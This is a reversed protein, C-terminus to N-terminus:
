KNSCCSLCSHLYLPHWPPFFCPTGLSSPLRFHKRHSSPTWRQLPTEELQRDLDHFGTPPWLVSRAYLSGLRTRGSLRGMLEWSEVLPPSAGKGPGEWARSVASSLPGDSRGDQGTLKQEQYPNSQGTTKLTTSLVCCHAIFALLKM